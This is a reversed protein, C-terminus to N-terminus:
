NNLHGYAEAPVTTESGGPPTWYLGLASTGKKQYYDIALDYWGAQQVAFEIAESITDSHIYPDEHLLIGAITVKVGDNSNVRFLYTGPDPLHIMGRIEAGVGMSRKATLVKGSNTDHDLLAIPPGPKGKVLKSIYAVDEFMAYYYTVALGPEVKGISPQPSLPEAGTMTQAFVPNVGICLMLALAWTQLAPYCKKSLEIPDPM